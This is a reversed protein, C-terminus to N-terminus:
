PPPPALAPQVWSIVTRADALRDMAVPRSYRETPSGLAPSPYRSTVFEANLRGAARLVEDPAALRRALSELEHTKPPDDNEREIWLAKLAMEAAQQANFVALHHIGGDMLREAAQLNSQATEWWQRTEDRMVKREPAPPADHVLLDVGREVERAIWSGRRLKERGLEDPTLCLLDLGVDLLWLGRVLPAREVLPVRAFRGSALVIDYDSSRLPNGRARSGILVFAHPSFRRRVQRVFEEFGPTILATPEQLTPQVM